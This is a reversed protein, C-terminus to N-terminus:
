EPTGIRLKISLIEPCFNVSSTPEAIQESRDTLMNLRGRNRGRGRVILLWQIPDWDFAKAAQERFALLHSALHM